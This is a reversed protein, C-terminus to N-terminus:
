AELFDGTGHRSRYRTQPQLPLAHVGAARHGDEAGGAQEECENREMANFDWEDVRVEGEEASVKGRAGVRAAGLRGAAGQRM